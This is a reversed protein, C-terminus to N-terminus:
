ATVESDATEADPLRVRGSVLNELLSSRLARLHALHAKAALVAAEVKEIRAVIAQQEALPPIPIEIALLKRSTLFNQASGMGARECAAALSPSTIRHRWWSMDVSDAITFRMFNTSLVAKDFDEPVVAYGGGAAGQRLVVFDGAYVRQQPTKSREAKWRPATSIGRGGMAVSIPLESGWSIDEVVEKAPTLFSGLPTVDGARIENEITAKLLMDADAAHREAAEVARDAQELVALIRRQEVLAPLGITWDLIMSPRVSSYNTSGQPSIQSRGSHTQFFWNIFRRDAKAEDVEFLFYHSSVISGDLDDGILGIGGFKADIEAVILDGARCVQQKKTKITSGARTERLVVGRGHLQVRCLQYEQDDDITIAGKRHRIVDGLAVGSWENPLM